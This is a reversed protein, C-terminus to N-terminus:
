TSAVHKQFALWRTEFSVDKEHDWKDTSNRLATHRERTKSNGLIDVSSSQYLVDYQVVTTLWDRRLMMTSSYGPHVDFLTM